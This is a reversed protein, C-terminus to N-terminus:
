PRGRKAFRAEIAGLVFGWGEAHQRGLENDPVDTHRLTLRTGGDVPELTLTVTTEVGGTAESMWTHEIRGPRDLHVFRGYHAWVRGAHRVCHYFLGDVRPDLLVRESGFWPSGPSKADLWVDFVDPPPAPITRTVTLEIPKL